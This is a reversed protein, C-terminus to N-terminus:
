HRRKRIGGGSRGLKAASEDPCFNLTAIATMVKATTSNSVKDAGNVVRSVTAISVGAM